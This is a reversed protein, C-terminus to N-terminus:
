ASRRRPRNRTRACTSSAASTSTRPMAIGARELLVDDAHEMDHFELVGDHEDILAEIEAESM